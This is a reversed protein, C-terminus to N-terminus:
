PFALTSRRPRISVIEACVPWIRALELNTRDFVLRDQKDFGKACSGIVPVDVGSEQLVEQARDVQGEGGDIIMIGGAIAVVTCADSARALRRRLVEELMGVDNAGKITEIRFEAILM